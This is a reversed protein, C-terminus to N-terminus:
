PTSGPWNV